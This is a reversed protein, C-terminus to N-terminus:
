VYGLHVPYLSPTVNDMLAYRLHIEMAGQKNYFNLPVDEYDFDITQKYRTNTANAGINTLVVRGILGNSNRFESYWPIHIVLEDGSEWVATDLDNADIRLQQEYTDDLIGDVYFVTVKNRLATLEATTLQTAGYSSDSYSTKVSYRASWDIAQTSGGAEITIDGSGLVSEGNITKITTGSVLTDQKSDLETQLDTQDSLTGTIDGWAADSGGSGGEASIIPNLPDTKDITVGTGAVVDNLTNVQAGSEVSDLKVKDTNSLVGANTADAENITIDEGTSSYIVVASPDYAISLDTGTIDDVTALQTFTTGSTDNSHFVGDDNVRLKWDVQGFTGMKYVDWNGTNTTLDFTIGYRQPDTSGIPAFKTDGYLTANDPITAGSTDVQTWAGDQRAYQTGDQPAESIITPKNSLDNYSGTTAVTSLSSIDAKEDLEAQLDTQNEIDGSITGWTGGVGSSIDVWAEDKRGYTNGDVPAEPVSVEGLSGAYNEIITSNETIKAVEAVLEDKATEIAQITNTDVFDTM